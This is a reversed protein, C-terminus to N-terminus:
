GHGGGKSPAAAPAEGAKTERKVDTMLNFRIAKAEAL